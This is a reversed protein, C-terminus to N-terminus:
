SVLSIGSGGRAVVMCIDWIAVGQVGADVPILWLVARRVLIDIKSCTKLFRVAERLKEMFISSSEFTDNLSCM